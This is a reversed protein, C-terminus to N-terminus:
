MNRSFSIVVPLRPYQAYLQARLNRNKHQVFSWRWYCRCYSSMASKVFNLHRSGGDAHSKNKEAM